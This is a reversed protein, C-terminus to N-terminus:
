WSKQLSLPPLEADDSEDATETFPSSMEGMETDLQQINELSARLGLSVPALKHRAYLLLGVLLVLSMMLIGALNILLSDTSYRAVTGGAQLFTQKELIGTCAVALATGYLFMGFVRHLPMSQEKLMQPLPLGTFLLLGAGYQFLFTAILLLGMWSHLSYFNPISKAGHFSLVAFMGACLCLLALTHCGIHITKSTRKSFVEVAFVAMAQTEFGVFGVAMMIPHFNFPYDPADSSFTGRYGMLWVLFLLIVAIANGLIAWALTAVIKNRDRCSIM